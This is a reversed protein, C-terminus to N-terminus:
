KVKYYKNYFPVITSMFALVFQSKRTMMGDSWCDFAWWKHSIKEENTIEALVAWLELGDEYIKKRFLEPVEIMNSFWYHWEWKNDLIYVVWFLYAKNDIMQMWWEMWIYLDAQVEKKSNLTRNYAGKMNEELSIPM